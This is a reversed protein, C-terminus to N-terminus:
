ARFALSNMRAVRRESDFEDILWNVEGGSVTVQCHGCLQGLPRYEPAPLPDM